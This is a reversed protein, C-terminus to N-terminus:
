SPRPGVARFRGGCGRHGFRQWDRTSRRMRKLEFGCRVCRAVVIERSERLAASAQRFRPDLGGRAPMAGLALAMKRWRPGHRERKSVLEVIVIHAVEHLITDRRAEASCDLTTLRFTRTRTSISGFRTVARSPRVTWGEFASFAAAAFEREGRGLDSAVKRLGAEVSARLGEDELFCVLPQPCFSM